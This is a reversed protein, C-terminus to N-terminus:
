TSGASLAVVVAAATHSTHTLSIHWAGIGRANAQDLAGCSLVISPAGTASSIVAVDTLAIGDRLGGLVKLVAEKAAFRAALRVLQDAGTGVDRQEASTFCRNLVVPDREGYLAVFRDLEVLDLGIGVLPM